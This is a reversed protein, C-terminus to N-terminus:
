RKFDKVKEHFPTIDALKLDSPFQSDKLCGNRSVHSFNAVFNFNKQITKTPIDSQWSTEKTDLNKIEKKIEECLIAEFLNKTQINRLYIFKISSHYKFKNVAKLVPYNIDDANIEFIEKTSIKLNPVIIM